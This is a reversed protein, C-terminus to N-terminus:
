EKPIPASELIVNCLANVSLKRNPPSADGWTDKWNELGQNVFWEMKKTDEPSIYTCANESISKLEAAVYNVGFYVGVMGLIAFTWYLPSFWRNM